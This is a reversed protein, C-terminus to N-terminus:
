APSVPREFPEIREAALAKFNEGYLTTMTREWLTKEEGSTTSAGDDRAHPRRGARSRWSIWENYSLPPPREINGAEIEEMLTGTSGAVELDMAAM